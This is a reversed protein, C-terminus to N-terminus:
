GLLSVKNRHKSSVVLGGIEAFPDSELRLSGFIHIWGVVEAKEVAVFLDDSASTIIKELRSIIEESSTSYGLEDCLVSLESIDELVAKRIITKEM